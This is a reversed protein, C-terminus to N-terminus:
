YSQGWTYRWYSNARVLTFLDNSDLYSPWGAEITTLGLGIDFEVSQVPSPELGLNLGLWKDPRISFLGPPEKWSLVVTGGWSNQKLRAAWIEFPLNSRIRPDSDQTYFISTNQYEEPALAFSLTGIRDEIRQGPASTHCIAQATGNPGLKIVMVGPCAPGTTEYSRSVVKGHGFAHVLGEVGTPDDGDDLDDPEDADNIGTSPLLSTPADSQRQVYLSPHPFLNGATMSTTHFATWTQVDPWFAIARWVAQACTNSNFAMSPLRLDSVDVAGYLITGATNPTPSNPYFIGSDNPYAARFLACRVLVNAEFRYPELERPSWYQGYGELNSNDGFITKELYYWGGLFVLESSCADGADSPSMHDLTGLFMPRDRHISGQNIWDCSFLYLEGSKFHEWVQSPEVLPSSTELKLRVEDAARSRFFLRFSAVPLYDLRVSVRTPSGGSLITHIKWNREM